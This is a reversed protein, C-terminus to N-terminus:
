SSSFSGLYLFWSLFDTYVNGENWESWMGALTSGDPTTQNSKFNIIDM